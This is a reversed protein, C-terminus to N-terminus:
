VMMSGFRRMHTESKLSIRPLSLSDSNPGQYLELITLRSHGLLDIPSESRDAEGFHVQRKANPMTFNALSDVENRNILWKPGELSRPQGQFPLIMVMGM